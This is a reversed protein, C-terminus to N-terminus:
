LHVLIYPRAFGAPTKTEEVVRSLVLPLWQCNASDVVRKLAPHLRSNIDVVGAADETSTAVGGAGSSASLEKRVLGQYHDDVTEEPSCRTKGSSLQLKKDSGKPYLERRHPQPGQGFVNPFQTALKEKALNYDIGERVGYVRFPPAWLFDLLAAKELGQNLSDVSFGGRPIALGKNLPWCTTLWWDVAKVAVPATAEDLLTFGNSLALVDASGHCYHRIKNWEPLGFSTAACPQIQNRYRCAHYACTTERVNTYDKPLCYGEDMEMRLLRIDELLLLLEQFIASVGCWHFRGPFIFPGILQDHLVGCWVNIGFHHQFSSELAPHTHSHTFLNPNSKIYLHTHLLAPIFPHPFRSIGSFVRRGIADDLVIGVHLFRLSGAPSQVQIVKTPPLSALQEAVTAGSLAVSVQIDAYANNVALEVQLLVLSVSMKQSPRRGSVLRHMWYGELSMKMWSGDAQAINQLSLKSLQVLYGRMYYFPSLSEIVTYQVNDMKIIKGSKRLHFNHWIISNTPLNEQPDGTEACGKMIASSLSIIHEFKSVPVAFGCEELVEVRAIEELPVEKDVIGACLELTFGHETPYKSTEIEAIGEHEPLNAYYVAPRFQKVLIFVNRSINFLLIAVSNHVKLLHKEKDVGNTGILQYRLHPSIIGISPNINCTATANAPPQPCLKPPFFSHQKKAYGEATTLGPFGEQLSFTNYVYELYRKEPRAQTTSSNRYVLTDGAPPLKYTESRAVALLYRQRAWQEQQWKRSQTGGKRSYM